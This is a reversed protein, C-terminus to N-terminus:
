GGTPTASLFSMAETLIEVPLDALDEKAVDVLNNGEGPLKGSIFKDSLVKVAEEMAKSIEGIDTTDPKINLQSLTKIEAFTLLNFELYAGEGFKALDLKKALNFKGM